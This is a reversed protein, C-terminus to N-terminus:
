HPGGARALFVESANTMVVTPRSTQWPQQSASLWLRFKLSRQTRMLGPGLSSSDEHGRKPVSDSNLTTQSLDGIWTVRDKAAGRIQDEERNGAFRSLM